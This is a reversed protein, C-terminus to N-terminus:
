PTSLVHCAVAQDNGPRWDDPSALDADLVDLADEFTEESESLDKSQERYSDGSDLDMAGSGSNRILANALADQRDEIELILTKFHLYQDQPNEDPTQGYFRYWGINYDRRWAAEDLPSYGFSDINETDVKRLNSSRLIDITETDAHRAAYNLINQGHADIVSTDIYHAGLLLQLSRHSNHGIAFLLPTKGTETKPNIEVRWELLQAVSEYYDYEAAEHLQRKGLNDKTDLDADAARLQRLNHVNGVSRLFATRGKPDKANLDAKATVLLEICPNLSDDVVAWHLPTLGLRDPKDFDAGRNLLERASTLDRRQCAWSFTTRGCSDLVDIASTPTLHLQDNFAKGATELYAKHLKPFGFVRVQSQDGVRSCLSELRKVFDAAHQESLLRTWAFTISCRIVTLLTRFSELPSSVM